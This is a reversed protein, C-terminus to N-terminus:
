YNESISKGHSENFGDFFYQSFYLSSNLPAINMNKTLSLSGQYIYNQDRTQVGYGQRTIKQM